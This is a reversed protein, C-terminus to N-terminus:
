VWKMEHWSIVYYPIIIRLFLILPTTSLAEIIFESSFLSLAPLFYYMMLIVSTLPSISINFYTLRQLLCMNPRVFVLNNRSLLVEISSTERQLVQYLKDTLNILVITRFADSTTVSYVSKWGRSHMVYGTLIDKPGYIHM